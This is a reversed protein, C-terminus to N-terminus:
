SSIMAVKWGYRKESIKFILLTDVIALTGMLLRPVLYLSAISEASAVPGMANPFGIVKLVGALFLQGFYPHDHFSEEQPGTGNLVGMARRMYVGEDYFLDPFGTPNFLHTFASLALPIMLFFIRNKRSGISVVGLM